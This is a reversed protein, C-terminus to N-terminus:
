PWFRKGTTKRNGQIWQRPNRAQVDQSWPRDDRAQSIIGQKKHRYDLAKTRYGLIEEIAKSRIGLIEQGFAKVRHGLIDQRADLAKNRINPNLTKTRM